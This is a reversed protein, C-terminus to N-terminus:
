ELRILYQLIVMWKRNDQELRNQNTTFVPRNQLNLSLKSLHGRFLLNVGIDYYLMAENLREFDSYQFSFYPQLQGKNGLSGLPPLLYGAQTFFSNGTGIAPFANGAGNFSTFSENVANAINNAGINRIYNPGFNYNFYATYFTIATNKISNIPQDLFFDVAWLMMDNYITDGNQLNWLSNPAAEFGIGVNMVSKSGLYSGDSFAIKNRERDKFEWKMYGSYISKSPNDAFKAINEEPIPDFDLSNRASFPKSIVFRYDLRGLKGKAYLSLKRILDDTEDDTPLALFILDYALLKSTNPASYRSLGTWATKGGGIELAPSLQYEAYADLLDVSTGRPSLYNLNNIGLQTYVFLKATLQGQLALRFRRVSIDTSTNQVENFIQTGPNNRNVRAWLQVYTHMALWRTSDNQLYWKLPSNGFPTTTQQQANAISSHFLLLYIIRKLSM